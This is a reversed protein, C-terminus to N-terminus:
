GVAETFGECIHPPALDETVHLERDFTPAEHGVAVNDRGFRRVEIGEHGVGRHLLAGPRDLKLLNRSVREGGRQLEHVRVLGRKRALVIELRQKVGCGQKAYRRELRCHLCGDGLTELRGGGKM